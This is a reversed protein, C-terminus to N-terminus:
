TNFFIQSAMKSQISLAGVASDAVQLEFLNVHHMIEYM